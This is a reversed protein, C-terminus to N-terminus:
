YGTDLTIVGAVEKQNGKQEVIYLRDCIWRDGKALGKGGQVTVHPRFVRPRKATEDVLWANQQHFYTRVRPEIEEFSSPLKVLTVLKSGKYGFVANEGMKVEFSQIGELLSKLDSSIDESSKNLRFWPVITVHLPWQKFQAGL